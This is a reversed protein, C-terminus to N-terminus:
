GGLVAKLEGAIRAKESKLTAIDQELTAKEVALTEKERALTARAFRVTTRNEELEKASAESAERIRQKITDLETELRRRTDAMGEQMRQEDLRLSKIRGELDAVKAETAAKIADAKAQAAARTQELAAELSRISAARQANMEEALAAKRAELDAVERTIGQLRGAQELLKEAKALGRIIPLAAQIDKLDQESMEDV